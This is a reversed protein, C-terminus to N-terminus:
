SRCKCKSHNTDHAVCVFIASNRKKIHVHIASVNQIAVLM